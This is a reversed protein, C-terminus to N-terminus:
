PMVSICYLENGDEDETELDRVYVTVGDYEYWADEESAFMDDFLDEKWSDYDETLQPMLFDFFKGTDEESAYWLTVSHLKKNVSDYDIAWYLEPGEEFGAYVYTNLVARSEGEYKYTYNYAYEDLYISDTDLDRQDSYERLWDDFGPRIDDIATDFHDYEECGDPYASLDEIVTYNLDDQSASDEGQDIQEEIRSEYVLEDEYAEDGPEDAEDHVDVLNELKDFPLKEAGSGVLGVICSAMVDIITIIAIIIAIVKVLNKNKKEQPEGSQRSNRESSVTKKEFQKHWDNAKPMHHDLEDHTEGYACDVEGKGRTDTNYHIDMIQPKWVFSHCVDCYHAKKMESDCLPCLKVIM